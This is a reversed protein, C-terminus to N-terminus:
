KQLWIPNAYAFSSTSECEIEARLYGNQPLKELEFTHEIRISDKLGVDKITEKGTEVDGIILSLRSIAGFESSSAGNLTIRANNVAAATDGSLLTTEEHRMSIALAPGNSIIGRGQRLASLLASRTFDEDVFIGSRMRGLVQRDLREMRYLPVVIQRAANFNGHADNGALLAIRRGNRLAQKWKKLGRQFTGKGVGNLIQWYHLQPMALDEEHWFGRNLLLRQSAPPEEFPHAAAIITQPEARLKEFLTELNMTPRNNLPTEGSDGSGPYFTQNGILLCHVNEGRANGVSIEEGPLLKVGTQKEVELAEKHLTHWKQLQPDNRTYDDPFDDLDYSHDTIALFHLGSHRACDATELLPAGFEIQDNTYLTHLHADGWRLQPLSPLSESAAFLKFPQHSIGNYNDQQLVKPKGNLSYELVADVWLEGSGSLKGLDVYNTKSYFPKDIKEIVEVEHQQKRGDAAFITITIRLLFVPFRDADKVFLYVPLLLNPELRNPLDFVIEPERMFLKGPIGPLRFHIEAYAILLTLLVIVGPLSDSFFAASM